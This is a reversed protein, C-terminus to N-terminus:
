YRRTICKRTTAPPFDQESSKPFLWINKDHFGQDLLIVQGYSKRFGLNFHYLSYPNIIWNLGIYLM